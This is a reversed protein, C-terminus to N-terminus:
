GPAAAGPTAARRPPARPAPQQGFATPLVGSLSAGALPTRPPASPPTLAAAWVKVTSDASGTVLTGEHFRACMVPGRHGTLACSVSEDTLDWMCVRGDESGSVVYANSPDLTSQLKFKLNTHGRFRALEGGTDRDILRVSSDLTSAIVCARDSSYSVSGIPQLLKDTVLLGMRVDYRRLSGDVSGTAIEDGAACVCLVADTADSLVQIPRRERTRLDWIRVSKDASASLLVAEDPGHALANVRRDHGVFKRIVNGSTVDWQFFDKDGGCSVFKANDEAIVVDLVEHNHPGKYTKVHIGRDPNWLRLSM